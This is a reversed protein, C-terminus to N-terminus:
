APATREDLAHELLASLTDFTLCAGACARRVCDPTALAADLRLRFEQWMPGTRAGWGHFYAGGQTRGIGAAALTRTIMQGGLASGELVYLSGWAEPAGALRLEGEWPAPAAALAQLDQRLFPRRSRQRLWPGLGPPLAAALATEWSGHFADFAQLVRVYRQPQALRRLDMQRDIRDHHRRTAGRLAILAGPHSSSPCAHAAPQSKLSPIPSEAPKEAAARM